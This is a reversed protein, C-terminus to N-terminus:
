SKLLRRAPVGTRSPSRTRALRSHRRPRTEGRARSGGHGGRRRRPRRGLAGGVASACWSPSRAPWGRGRRSTTSSASRRRSTSWLGTSTAAGGQRHGPLPRGTGVLLLRRRHLLRRGRRARPAGAGGAVDGLRAAALVAAAIGSTAVHGNPYDWFDITHQRQLSDAAEDLDGVEANLLSWHAWVAPFWGDGKRAAMREALEGLRGQMFRFSFRQSAFILAADPAGVRRALDLSRMMEATPRMSTATSRSSPRGTVPCGSSPSQSACARRPGRPPRLGIGRPGDGVELAMKVSYHLARFGLLDDDLREALDVLEAVDRRARRDHRRPRRGGAPPRPGVGAHAPERIAAGAGICRREPPPPRRIGTRREAGDGLQM